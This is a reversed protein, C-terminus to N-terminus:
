EHHDMEMANTILLKIQTEYYSFQELHDVNQNTKKKKPCLQYLQKAGHPTM